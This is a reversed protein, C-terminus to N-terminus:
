QELNNVIIYVKESEVVKGGWSYVRARIEYTDSKPITQWVFNLNNQEIPEKKEIIVDGGLENHYYLEAKSALAHDNISFQFNLPFDINSVALSGKPKIATIELNGETQAGSVNLRFNIEKQACNDVDDCVRVKLKHFGNSLFSINKALNFPYNKNVSFLNNNIYYEVRNVGRPASVKVRSFLVSEKIEQNETPSLVELSPINEPLHVNDYETPITGSAMETSSAQEKAWRQVAEEWNKFQPDSGPDEPAPGLPDNKDVYYLICHPNNFVKEEIYNEPTYETALLGSAKDIKVVTGPEVEGDLIAKGTKEIKPKKFEEIPTDGLVRQMYDHWIPAAVTGGAAGRKMKSNDNNGVWVGALLSPTYGITWADRYDNTTGTKAAVPRNGLTLWNKVGFAYARADNDSLIDNIMRAVRPDLVKKSDQKYEELVKGNPDEVKLIYSVKNLYGERAFASYANVHEVMKVEAGGLVLSLGFRDKDNLTTYGLDRALEVVSDVSALYIAKVAPINLSGALAKRINIPGHEESDYNHPEYNKGDETSFNTVVDYLITDPTYGKLFATAYVLPKLSSGPQRKATTINVQGDIEDNFYDRSGVMALVQGTKPDISVLGANTAKYNKENKEGREKIVEEAINQKYLDLTTYIKLGGQEITKEGYKEALIEKVLMVFHPAKINEGPKKFELKYKKAEEADEKSIYGYKAMLDLIYQQRGILLDKNSGYPSYRSPAQPLAALTACEALNLDRVSKGFYRQAAAEVGYATSGYPIENLYMQLIEDKSFRKELKYSLILEKIKRTYTKESTLVSNKVFQQTLTSGGAKRGYLVNTLATRVIAWLSFGGHKYFDKDEISITAWKLYDPIDKLNVLTRKEAGHIEYLLEKGTRDYIKTSQPIQRELLKNPDPLDKSISAVVFGLGVLGLFFLVLGLLFLKKFAVIFFLKFDFSKKKAKPKSLYHNQRNRAMRSEKNERWSQQSKNKLQPIPM